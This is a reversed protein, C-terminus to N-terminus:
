RGAAQWSATLAKVSQWSNPTLLLGLFAARFAAFRHGASAYLRSAWRYDSALKWRLDKRCDAFAPDFFAKRSARTVKRALNLTNKMMSEHHRRLIMTPAEIWYLDAKLSACLWFYWDEGFILTEDFRGLAEVLERKIMASGVHPPMPWHILARTPRQLHILGPELTRGLKAANAFDTNAEIEDLRPMVQVNGALWVAEPHKEIVALRTAMADPLLLDDADLFAIWEGRAARIGANRAAAPGANRPQRLVRVGPHHEFDNLLQRTLPDTSCDDILLIETQRTFGTQAAISRVAETLYAGTNFVPVVFSAFM